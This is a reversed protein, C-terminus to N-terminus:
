TDLAKQHKNSRMHRARHCHTYKVGCVECICPKSDREKKKERNVISYNHVRAKIEDKHDQYHQQRQQKIKEKNITRWEAYPEKKDKRYEKDTRSPVVTNLTAGLDEVFEREIKRAELANNCSRTELLVM